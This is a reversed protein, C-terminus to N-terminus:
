IINALDGIYVSGSCKLVVNTSGSAFSPTAGSGLAVTRDRNRALGTTSNADISFYFSETSPWTVNSSQTILLDCSQASKNLLPLSGIQPYINTTGTFTVSSISIYAEIFMWGNKISYRGKNGSGYTITVGTANVLTISPTFDGYINPTEFSTNLYSPVLNGYVPSPDDYLTNCFVNNLLEFGQNTYAVNVYVDHHLSANASGQLATVNNRWTTNNKIALNRSFINVYFIAINNAGTYNSQPSICVNDSADINICSDFFFITGFCQECGNSKFSIGHCANLVYSLGNVSRNSYSTVASQNNTDDCANSYISSYKVDRFYYGADRAGVVYNSNVTLSTGSELAIGQICHFCRVLEIKSFWFTPSVFAALSVYEISVNHIHSSSMGVSAIGFRVPSTTPDTSNSTLTMGSIEVNEARIADYVWLICNVDGNDDGMSQLFLCVLQATATADVPTNTTKTIKTATVSDGIFAINSYLTLPSTIIYNGEPLYVTGGGIGHVANIANQIATTDDNSGNGLAGFDKVSVYDGFGDSIFRGVANPYSVANKSAIFTSSTTVNSGTSSLMLGTSNGNGDQVTQLSSTIGGPIQLLGNFSSNIQQNSLSSM